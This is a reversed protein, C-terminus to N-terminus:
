CQLPLHEGWVPTFMIFDNHRFSDSSAYLHILNYTTDLEPEEHLM